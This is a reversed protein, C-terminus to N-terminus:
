FPLVKKMLGVTATFHFKQGGGEYGVNCRMDLYM